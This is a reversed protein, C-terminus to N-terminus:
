KMSTEVKGIKTLRDSIKSISLGMIQFIERVIQRQNKNVALQQHADEVMKTQLQLVDSVLSTKDLPDKVRQETSTSLQKLLIIFFSLIICSFLVCRLKKITMSLTIYHKLNFEALLQYIILLTCAKIM